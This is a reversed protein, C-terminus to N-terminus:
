EAFSFEPKSEDLQAAETCVENEADNINRATDVSVGNSEAVPIVRTCPVAIAEPAHGRHKDEAAREVCSDFRNCNSGSLCSIRALSHGKGDSLDEPAHSGWGETRKWEEGSELVSLCLIKM